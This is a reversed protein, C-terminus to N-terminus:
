EILIAQKNRPDIWDGSQIANYLITLNAMYIKRGEEILEKSLAFTRVTFPFVSECVVLYYKNNLIDQLRSSVADIYYAAQIHYGYRKCMEPFDEIPKSTHKLDIIDFYNKDYRIIDVKSKLMVEGDKFWTIVKEKDSQYNQFTDNYILENALENSRINKEITELLELEDESVYVIGSKSKEEIEAKQFKGLSTRGDIKDYYQVTKEYVPEPEENNSIYSVITNGNWVDPELIKCHLLQGFRFHDDNRSAKSRKLLSYYDLSKAVLHLDSNSIGPMDFYPDRFLNM